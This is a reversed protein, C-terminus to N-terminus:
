DYTPGQAPKEEEGAFALTFWFTSGAGPASEVGIEGGHQEIISRSIYLGLGLGEGFGHQAQIGEARHFQEWIRAQERPPIGPGEDTVAARALGGEERRLTLRVPRDPPSYKVANSLLNGLVQGIREGEALAVVPGEPLDLTVERGTAERQLDAERRCLAALDVPALELRLGGKEISAAARLDQLLREMRSLAHSLSEIAEPDPAKPALGKQM